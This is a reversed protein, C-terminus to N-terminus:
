VGLLCGVYAMTANENKQMKHIAKTFFLNQAEDDFFRPDVKDINKIMDETMKDLAVDFEAQAFVGKREYADKIVSEAQELSMHNDIADDIDNFLGMRRQDVKKLSSEEELAKLFRAHKSGSNALKLLKRSAISDLEGGKLQLYWIPHDFELGGEGGSFDSSEIAKLRKSGENVYPMGRFLKKAIENVEPDHDLKNYQETLFVKRAGSEKWYTRTKKMINSLELVTSADNLSSHNGNLVIGHKSLLAQNLKRKAIGTIDSSLYKNYEVAGEDTLRIDSEVKNTTIKPSLADKKIQNKQKETFSDEIFKETTEAKNAEENLVPQSEKRVSNIPSDTKLVDIKHDEVPIDAMLEETKSGARAVQTKAATTVRYAAGAGEFVGFALSNLATEKLFGATDINAHGNKDYSINSGIEFPLMPISFTAFRRALGKVAGSKVAGPDFAEFFTSGDLTDLASAASKSAAVTGAESTIAAAEGAASAGAEATIATAKGAASIGLKAILTEGAFPIAALGVMSAINTATMIGQSPHDAAINMKALDINDNFNFGGQDENGQYIANGFLANHTLPNLPTSQGIWKGTNYISEAAGVVSGKLADYISGGTGVQAGSYTTDQPRLRSDVNMSFPVTTKEPGVPDDKQTKYNNENFTPKGEDPKEDDIIM